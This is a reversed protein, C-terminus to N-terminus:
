IAKDGPNPIPATLPLKSALQQLTTILPIADTVMDTDGNSQADVYLAKAYFLAAMYDKKQIMDKIMVLQSEYKQYLTAGECLATAAQAFKSETNSLQGASCSMFAAAIIIFPFKITM